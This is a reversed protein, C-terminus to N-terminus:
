DPFLGKQKRWKRVSELAKPTGLKELKEAWMRSNRNNLQTIWWNELIELAEPTGINELAEEANDCVREVFFTMIFQGGSTHEILSDDKLATALYTIGDPSGIKGLLRASCGRLYPIEESILMQGIVPIFLNSSKFYRIANLAAVRISPEKDHLLSGIKDAAIEDGIDALAEIALIKSGTDGDDLISMLVPIAEINQFERLGFAAQNRVYSDTHTLADVLYEESSIDALETLVDIARHRIQIDRSAVLENLLELARSDNLQVLANFAKLSMKYDYQLNSLLFVSYSYALYDRLLLHTFSFDHSDNKESNIEFEGGQNMSSQESIKEVILHLRACFKIFSGVKQVDIHKAIQVLTFSNEGVYYSGFDEIALRSLVEKIESLSFLVNAYKKRAEHAYRQNIYTEFIKDRM